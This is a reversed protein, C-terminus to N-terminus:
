SGEGSYNSCHNNDWAALLKENILFGHQFVDGLSTPFIRNTRAPDRLICLSFLLMTHRFVLDGSQGFITFSWIKRVGPKMSRNGCLGCSLGVSFRKCQEPPCKLPAVRGDIVCSSPLLFYLFVSLFYKIIKLFFNEKHLCHIEAQLNLFILINQQSWCFSM